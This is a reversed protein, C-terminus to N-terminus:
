SSFYSFFHSVRGRDYLVQQFGIRQALGRQPRDDLLQRQRAAAISEIGSAPNTQLCDQQCLCDPVGPAHHTQVDHGFQKRITLIEYIFRPKSIPDGETGSIHAAQGEVVVAEVPGPARVADTIGRAVQRSRQLLKHAHHSRSAAKDQQPPRGLL